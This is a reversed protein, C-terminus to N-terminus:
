LGVLGTMVFPWPVLLVVGAVLWVIRVWMRRGRTLLLVTVFWILPALITLWFSGQFMADTVMWQARGQLRYGGIIWGITYLLYAGGLVGFGVLAVNSLQAPAEAAGDAARGGPAAAVAAGPPPSVADDATDAASDGAQQTVREAGPGLAEWGKPLTVRPEEDGDWHLADDDEPIRPDPAM